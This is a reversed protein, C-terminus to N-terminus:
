GMIPENSWRAMTTGDDLCALGALHRCGTAKCATIHLMM